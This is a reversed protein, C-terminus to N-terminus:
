IGIAIWHVATAAASDSRSLWAKFGSTTLNTFSVFTSAPALTWPTMVVMPPNAFPQAFTITAQTANNTSPPTITVAGTEVHGGRGNALGLLWNMQDATVVQGATFNPTPM